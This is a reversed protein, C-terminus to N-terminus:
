KASKSREKALKALEGLLDSNLQPYKFNVFRWRGSEQALVAVVDPKDSKEATDNPSARWVEVSCRNGELHLKRAEYHDAPDQSGVIPDFDLGVLEGKALEQAENDAPLARLLGLSLVEPERERIKRQAVSVANPSIDQVLPAYWDYFEQTFRRCSSDENGQTSQAVVYIPFSPAILFSIVVLFLPARKDM